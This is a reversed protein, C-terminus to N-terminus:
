DLYDLRAHIRFPVYILAGLGATFAFLVIVPVVYRRAHGARLSRWWASEAPPAPWWLAIAQHTIAGALLVGSLGHVLLLLVTVRKEENQLARQLTREARPVGIALRGTDGRCGRVSSAEEADLKPRRSM